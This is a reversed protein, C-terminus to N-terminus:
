LLNPNNMNRKLAIYTSVENFRPPATDSSNSTTIPSSGSNTNTPPLVPIQVHSLQPQNLDQKIQALPHDNLSCRQILNVVALLQEDTLTKLVEMDAVMPDPYMTPESRQLVPQPFNVSGVAASEEARIMQPRVDRVNSPHAGVRMGRNAAQQQIRKMHDHDPRKRNNGFRTMSFERVTYQVDHKPTYTFVMLNSPPLVVNDDVNSLHAPQLNLPVYANEVRADCVASYMNSSPPMRAAYAPNTAYAPLSCYGPLCELVEEATLGIETAASLILQDTFGDVKVRVVRHREGKRPDSIDWQYERFRCVLHNALQCIFLSAGRQPNDQDPGAFNRM